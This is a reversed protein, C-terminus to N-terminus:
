DGGRARPQYHTWGGVPRVGLGVEGVKVRITPHDPHTIVVTVVEPADFEAVYRLDGVYKERLWRSPAPQFRCARVLDPPRELSVAAEYWNCTYFLADGQRVEGPWPTIPDERVLSFRPNGGNWAVEWAFKKRTRTTWVVEVGWFETDGYLPTATLSGKRSLTGASIYYEAKAAHDEGSQDRWQIFPFWRPDREAREVGVTLLGVPTDLQASLRQSRRFAREAWFVPQTEPPFRDAFRDLAEVLSHFAEKAERVQSPIHVTRQTNTMNLAAKAERYIDVALGLDEALNAKEALGRLGRIYDRIAANLAVQEECGSRLMIPEPGVARVLYAPDPVAALAARFEDSQQFPVVAETKM